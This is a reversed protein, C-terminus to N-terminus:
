IGFSARMQVDIRRRESKKDKGWLLEILGRGGAGAVGPLHGSLAARGYVAAVRTLNRTVRECGVAILDELRTFYQEVRGSGTVLIRSGDQNWVVYDATTRPNIIVREAGTEANWLRVTSDWAGTLIQSEDGNWLAQVVSDEHGVLTLLEEGTGADWVHALGDFDATLISKEDRSWRAQSVRSPHNM